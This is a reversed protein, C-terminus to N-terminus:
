KFHFKEWIYSRSDTKLYPMVKAREEATLYLPTTYTAALTQSDPSLTYKILEMDLRAAADQFAPDNRDVEERVFWDAKAPTFLDATELPEWTTTYFAVRSDPAPGDVTTVLCIVFTNNILPLLKMEITSSGTVQLLLYDSTLQKLVSTGNMRNKLRAEKGSRYLDILDKRWANELQPIMQDPMATFVAAMDQARVGTALLCICFFLILRKMTKKKIENRGRAAQAYLLFLYSMKSIILVRCDTKRKLGIDIPLFPLVKKSGEGLRAM